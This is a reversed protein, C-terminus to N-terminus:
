LKPVSSHFQHIRCVSPEMSGFLWGLIACNESFWASYRPNDDAPKPNSGTLWGLKGVRGLFLQFSRSWEAFNRGNLLQTTVKQSIMGPLAPLAVTGTPVTFQYFMFPSPGISTEVTSDELGVSTTM